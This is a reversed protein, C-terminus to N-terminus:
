IAPLAKFPERPYEARVTDGPRVVGSELVIGMVGTLEVIASNGLHLRTGEPLGPNKKANYSDQVMAGSHVDGAVGVGSLLQIELAVPKTFSHRSSFSVAVVEPKM